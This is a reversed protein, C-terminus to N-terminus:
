RKSVDDKVKKIQNIRKQLKQIMFDYYCKIEEETAYRIKNDYFTKTKPRKGNLMKLIFSSDYGLYKGIEKSSKFFIGNCLIPKFCKSSSFLYKRYTSLRANIYRLDKLQDDSLKEKREKIVCCNNKDSYRLGREIYEKPCSHKGSLWNLLNAHYINLYKACQSISEFEINDIIVSKSHYNNKGSIKAIQEPEWVSSEGGHTINYGFMPNTSNYSEILEKEKTQAFEKTVNDYLIEHEFNDWGYKKIASYFHISHIYGKGNKWRKYYPRQCSIGIYVKKNIKNTHKYVWYTKNYSM